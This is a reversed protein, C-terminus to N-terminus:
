YYIRKQKCHVAPLNDRVAAYLNGVATYAIDPFVSIVSGSLSVADNISVASNNHGGKYIRVIM